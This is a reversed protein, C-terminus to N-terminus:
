GSGVRGACGGGLVGAVRPGAGGATFEYVEVSLGWRGLGRSFSGTAFGQPTGAGLGVAGANADLHLGGPLDESLVGVLSGLVRGAGLDLSDNGTPLTVAPIVVVAARSGVSERLKLAAGIDGVGSGMSTRIFGTGFLGLQVHRALGIKLNFEWSAVSRGDRQTRVGQELEVYGPAVAYAHTAVSPREPNAARPSPTQGQALMASCGLVNLTISLLSPRTM